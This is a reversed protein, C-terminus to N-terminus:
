SSETKKLPESRGDLIQRMENGGRNERKRVVIMRKKGQGNKLKKENRLEDIKWNNDLSQMNKKLINLNQPEPQQITM